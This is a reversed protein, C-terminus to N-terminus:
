QFWGEVDVVASVDGSANFLRINGVPSLQSLGVVVLNSLVPGVINLDSSNPRPAVDAPYSTLYTGSSPAVATLNAIIAVPGVTPFGDVGAVAIQLTTGAGLTHGSCPTETGARTDCVRSSGIAQFQAGVPTSSLSSGFWGNVDLIVDVSGAANYVCIDTAPGGSM